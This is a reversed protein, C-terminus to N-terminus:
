AVESGIAINLASGCACRRLGARIFVRRERCDPCKASYLDWELGRRSRARLHLAYVIPAPAPANSRRARRNLPANEGTPTDTTPM